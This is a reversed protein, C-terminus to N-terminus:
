ELTIEGRDYKDLLEKMLLFTQEDVAYYNKSNPGFNFAIATHPVKMYISEELNKEFWHKQITFSESDKTKTKCEILFSSDRVDGKDFRTAGSNAVVRGGIAKAVNKEQRSSFHRTPLSEGTDKHQRFQM